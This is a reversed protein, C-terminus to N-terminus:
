PLVEYLENAINETLGEWPASLAASEPDANLREYAASLAEVSEWQRGLGM